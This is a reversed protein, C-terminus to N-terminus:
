EGSHDNSDIQEGKQCGDLIAHKSIPLANFPVDQTYLTFFGCIVLTSVGRELMLLM